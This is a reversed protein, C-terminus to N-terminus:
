KLSSFKLPSLRNGDLKMVPKKSTLVSPVARRSLMVSVVCLASVLPLIMLQKHIYGMLLELLLFGRFAKFDWTSKIHFYDDM